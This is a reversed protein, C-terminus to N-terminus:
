SPRVQQTMGATLLLAGAIAINKFFLSLELAAREGDMNWFDHFALNTLLTFGALAYAALPVFRRGVAVVTGGILELAVVTPLLLLAPELGVQQMSEATESYNLLKNLGGLLFLSALGIRGLTIAASQLPM